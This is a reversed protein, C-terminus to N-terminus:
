NSLFSDLQKISSLPHTVEPIRENASKEREAVMTYGLSPLKIKLTQFRITAANDKFSIVPDDTIRIMDTVNVACKELRINQYVSTFQQVAAIEDNQFIAPKSIWYVFNIVGPIKKLTLMEAETVHVFVVSNFLPQMVMKKSSLSKSNVKNVAYYNQIGKKSLLSAVKKEYHSKTYVAYWNRKM